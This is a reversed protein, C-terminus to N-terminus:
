RRRVRFQNPQSAEIPVGDGVDGSVEAFATLSKALASVSGFVFEATLKARGRTCSRDEYHEPAFRSGFRRIQFSHRERQSPGQTLCYQYRDVAFLDADLDRTDGTVVNTTAM